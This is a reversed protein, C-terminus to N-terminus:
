LFYLLSELAAHADNQIVEGVRYAVTHANQLCAPIKVPGSWNRYNFCQFYTFRWFTDENWNTTNEIVTYHTPIPTGQNVQQAILFFDFEKSTIREPFIMGNNENNPSFFKDSIRKNVIIYAFQPLKINYTQQIVSKMSKLEIEILDDIQSNGVGDRFIIITDPYYKNSKQYQQLSQNLLQGVGKNLEKGKEVILTKTFHKDSQQGFQANFGVCSKNNILTKHYVDIGIIMIKDSVETIKQINWLQKGIKSHVQKVIQQAIKSFKKSDVTQISVNQHLVGQGSILFRKLEFYLKSDEHRDLISVVIQPKGNTNFNNLLAQSWQAPDLNNMVIKKPANIQNGLEKTSKIFEQTFLNAIQQEENYHILIWNNINSQEILKGRQNFCAGDTQKINAEPFLTPKIIKYAPTISNNSLSISHNTFYKDLLTRENDIKSSRELPDLTTQQKINSMVKFNNKQTNTLEIMYLLEPILRIIQKTKRDEHVLLPQTLDSLKIKYRQYYYQEYTINSSEMKFTPNSKLDISKIRYMRKSYITMFTKNEFFQQLDIPNKSKKNDKIFQLVTQKNFIKTKFDILLLPSTQGIQLVSTFGQLIQVDNIKEIKDKDFFQGKRFIQKLNREQYIQSLIANMAQKLSEPPIQDLNQTLNYTKAHKIILNINQLQKCGPVQFSKEVYEFSWLNYGSIWFRNIGNKRIFQSSGTAYIILENQQEQPLEKAFTISYLQLQLNKLFKIEYHNSSFKMLQFYKSINQSRPPKLPPKYNTQQQDLIQM